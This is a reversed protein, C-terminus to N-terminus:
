PALPLVTFAAEVDSVYMFYGTQLMWAVDRNATLSHKLFSMDTAGNLGTKTHDTAPRVKTPELAKAVAGLPAVYFDKVESRLSKELTGWDGLCISKGEDIREQTAAGVQEMADVATKYNKFVRQGHLQSRDVGATFGWRLGQAVFVAHEHAVHGRAVARWMVTMFSDYKITCGPLACANSEEVIRALQRPAALAESAAAPM